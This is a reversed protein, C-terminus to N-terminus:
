SSAQRNQTSNELSFDFTTVSRAVIVSTKGWIVVVRRRNPAHERLTKWPSLEHLEWLAWANRDRGAVWVLEWRIRSQLLADRLKRHWWLGPEDRQHAFRRLAFSPLFGCGHRHVNWFISFLCIWSIAFESLTMTLSLVFSHSIFSLTIHHRTDNREYGISNVIMM